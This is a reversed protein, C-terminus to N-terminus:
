AVEAVIISRSILAKVGAKPHHTLSYRPISKPLRSTLNVLIGGGEPVEM